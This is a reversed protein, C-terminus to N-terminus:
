SAYLLGTGLDSGAASSAASPPVRVGVKECIRLSICGCGRGAREGASKSFYGDVIRVSQRHREADKYPWILGAM